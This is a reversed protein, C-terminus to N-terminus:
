YLIGMFMSGCAVYPTNRSVDSLVTNDTNLIGGVSIKIKIYTM